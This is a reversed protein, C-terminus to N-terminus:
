LNRKKTKQSKEVTSSIVIPKLFGGEGVTKAEQFVMPSTMPKSHEEPNSKTSRKTRIKM